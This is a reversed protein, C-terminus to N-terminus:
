RRRRQRALEARQARTRVLDEWRPDTTRRQEPIPRPLRAVHPTIRLAPDPSRAYRGLASHNRWFALEALLDHM